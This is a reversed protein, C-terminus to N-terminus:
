VKKKPSQLSAESCEVMHLPLNQKAGSMCREYQMWEDGADGDSVEEDVVEEDSVDEDAFEEDYLKTTPM